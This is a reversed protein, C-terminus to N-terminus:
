DLALTFSYSTPEDDTVVVRKGPVDMELMPDTSGETGVPDRAFEPRGRRVGCFVYGNSDTDGYITEGDCRVRVQCNFSSDDPFREVRLVELECRDGPDVPADGDVESVAGEATLGEDMEGLADRQRVLGTCPLVGIWRGDAELTARIVHWDGRDKEAMYALRGEGASGGVALSWSALGHRGRVDSSGCNLGWRSLRVDEGLADLAAPCAGVAELAAENAGGSWTALVAIGVIAPVLVLPVVRLYGLRSSRQYLELVAVARELEDAEIAGGVSRALM